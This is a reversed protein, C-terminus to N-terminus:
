GEWVSTYLFSQLEAVMAQESQPYEDSRKAQAILHLAACAHALAHM